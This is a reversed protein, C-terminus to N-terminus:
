KVLFRAAFGLIISIKIIFITLGGSFRLSSFIDAIAALVAADRLNSTLLRRHTPEAPKQTLNAVVAGKALIGPLVGVGPHSFDQGPV